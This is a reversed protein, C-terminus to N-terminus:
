KQDVWVWGLFIRTCTRHFWKPKKTMMFMVSNAKGGQGTIDYGGKNKKPISKLKFDECHPMFEGGMHEHEEWYINM